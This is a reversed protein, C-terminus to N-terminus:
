PGLGQDGHVQAGFLSEKLPGKVRLRDRIKLQQNQFAAMVMEARSPEDGPLKGLSNDPKMTLGYDPSFM